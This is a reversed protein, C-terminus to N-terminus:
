ARLAKFPDGAVPGLPNTRYGRLSLLVLGAADTVDVDFAGDGAEEVLATSGEPEGNAERRFELREIRSPLGMRDAQAIEALGATQFALEILRPAVTSPGGAPDQGPPLGRAFRGALIGDARWAEGVVRYSPGHFYIHYIADSGVAAASLPPVRRSEVGRPPQVTLRVTGTFHTTVEPEARGHLQRSGELRCDALIDDGELVYQVRVTITRAEGRYFKFPTLFEVRELAAVHREPFGLLAAESMAEIGIVGPLVATGDIRHDRLFPQAEPDLRTQVVLGGSAGFSAVMGAMLGVPSSATAGDFVARASPEELMIGLGGAILVEGRTGAGLERRVVPIGAQPALMDIGAQKMITPISGRTAMGIDSWATWDIAVGYAEPRTRRLSSMAKCLLDNAASYDTQGANGFRGAISSFVVAAGLPANGLGRLLNFWGDVKVDFVLDFERPDKKPLPRSVELGAAHVLVDVHGSERVIEAMVQAVRDGNRLDVCRYRPKGGHAEVAQIAALAARSREIRTIEQEVMAPTVRQGSGKLREFLDRKLGDRDSDLRACDTNAPDPEPTLDLLWFTGKSAAALDAVIASVISGAAGTVVFVGDAGPLRNGFEVALTQLGVTWRHDDAYGVEIVGPDHLTEDILQTAVATTKRSPAFDVAKVMRGPQERALSKAFGVVAGGITDTAGAPDYGHTGGLRTATMLFAPGDYLARMLRYLSKIRRNLAVARSGPELLDADDVPDLAPLWYVGTIPGDAEWEGVRRVVDEPDSCDELVLTTVGRETLQRVLAKGVGSADLAVLVRDGAGLAVTTRAFKAAPPRLLSVPVRRPVAQAAADSGAVMAGAGAATASGSAAGPAAAAAPGAQSPTGGGLDPRKEFVFEIARALTPYDRLALTEDREIDYVQRIAAFMEAQKVTDIGLDAELDLDLDLMDPPYGTQQAVIALVQERVADSPAGAPPPASAPAVAAAPVPPAAVGPQKLDPRKEYVFEIARALTPYDRLALNEDREIGYAERIAAFMEAQKVTDIGLDAELDLDLDLMDPPYGTQQAVIALVRERVADSQAAARPPTSASQAVAVPPAAPAAVATRKLDPRKEYVFEIARALTPYDRLALNEDREIGYAERIAAFMEAQKVTDIGLDAELDLDLALMDPPYGTQQAVIALVRERVADSQSAAPPPAAPTQGAAVVPAAPAAVATRKLDPRKEYVFEIARALTPYDRLALNEDREIGYAERIAAFMEAQKVTDIGLDAELDLDLALMDPPYGTQQAVIGLVRATVDDAAPARAEKAPVPPASVPPAGSPPRVAAAPRVAPEASPVPPLPRVPPPSAEAFPVASSPLDFSRRVPASAPERKPPGQDKVRLTRGVVELEPTDYGTVRALWAQWAAHDRIRYRYGMDNPARRAGDPPPVWRLLAMSIQSGFGAALRLAYRIPYAGGRSLNLRGLGPDVEQFNAVPPVIGSELMKIALTDEVGVGMAHGTFGKTNAIVIADAATGFVHRLAEVEASASGGRAPTYTEHSVFVTEPAIQQRTIGWRREVDSVLEEMVGVIHSVDLRSGHYASNATISGLVECIPEIGREAAAAVDEVVLATGGMGIIMGHRRRDFPLAADQVREDTAAAGSALFGSAMWPLLAETTVDDATLVIARRCRGRAIWDTALSLAQTSSACAGNTQVNPGRAGVYEAFQAHGMALVQFLFRRDFQFPTAEIERTLADIRRSLEAVTATDSSPLSARVAELEQRRMRRIQDEYYAEITAALSDLGPFASGFIVATDDRMEAPLGWGALLKSGTTTTKYRPVLPIGADRLADIGAAIALRTVRDLAQVRDAPFGYEAVLDLTGGIGALKIVGSTDDIPIFEAEGGAGKVLRTVRRDVQARRFREPMSRILLEGGLLRAVNADDFVRETGPLGLSAGTIGFRVPREGGGAYVAFSRELFDAFMRGLTLLRDPSESGGVRPPPAEHVPRNVLPTTPAAVPAPAPAAAPAPARIEPVADVAGRGLGEAYLGCLARNLSAIDGTRPQNTYFGSFGEREGLVDEALSYLVRKPGAEVFVRAGADYLTNLGRVFQVPSGIQRGLLGIMQPEVGPGMPYFDGTVNSIIPIAPPRMGLGQLVDTMPAAAPEVIKTHFAHSVPLQAVRLGKAQLALMAAEVAQTAGGIVCEKNSNLNAVVVYGPVDRLLAEVRDVPGFVAAMLGNDGLSLETMAKGRASVATLAGPFSLARAAVLAGYEGLSHGMVMDPVVGYAELLRTLATDVTLVAPQTIATQRLGETAQAALDENTPDVFICDTLPRGILPAMTRDAERFTDAVIPEAARLEALMNVYQSGQGTFLFAVKGPAGRGLFVGKNRLARWRGQQGEELAQLAKGALDSLDAPDGYDIALRVPATLDRAFPAAPRPAHGRDAEAKILRLRTAIESESAGGVVLAGRLPAKLATGTGPSSAAIEASAVVTRERALRGPVYEELVVHFNTGGFGFASVGARRVSAGNAGPKEWPQFETTVRFPSHAFDIAPNPARFNLSPPLLKHHLALTAKLLGAAGAAAKLHGINSKVSGLAVSQPPLGHRAFVDSLSEVEVVDGVKTSTGHGEVLDGAEPVLGAREWARRVALRQGVPNPATIGKGRGDSSGGLGRIVAYVRDGAHEADALRKLLFCAAGEGMVFGDAGEAYPRTGTASLAGIKCFKVFTSPSMNADIGGTLVADFDQQILGEMAASVAAMASACAADTIYNPGKFDFLAALRGAVVNALEGPMTDETIDPIRTQVGSRLELAVAQRVAEPLAQFSRSGALEAAIEPFLVRMSTLLHFDGGLANGLIVATRESDLTRDPYGYDALAERASVIAWRQALDMTEGVKPPIPLRWGRPNWEFERVWGGIKSYTKDTAKPDPDFYKGIDWRNAPVESISYRGACLNAWFSAANPADPLVAGVGVIAIARDATSKM